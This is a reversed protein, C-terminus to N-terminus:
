NSCSVLTSLWVVCFNCCYNPLLSNRSRPELQEIRLEPSFRLKRLEIRIKTLCFLHSGLRHHTKQLHSVDVEVIGSTEYIYPLFNKKKKEVHVEYLKAKNIPPKSQESTSKQKCKLSNGIKDESVSFKEKLRDPKKFSNYIIIVFRQTSIM